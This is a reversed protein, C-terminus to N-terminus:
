RAGMPPSTSCSRGRGGRGGRRRRDAGRGDVRRDAASGAGRAGGRCAGVRARGALAPCARRARGGRVRAACTHADFGGLLAEEPLEALLARVDAPQRRHAGAVARRRVRCSGGMSRPWSAYRRPPCGRCGSTGCENGTPWCGRGARAWGTWRMRRTALLVLVPDARLRRLCFLLARASGADAWHLDDIVVVVPGREELASLGALLAAGVAFVEDGSPAQAPCTRLCSGRWGSSWSRSPRMGAPGSLRHM